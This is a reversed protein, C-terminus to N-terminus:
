IVKQKELYKVVEQLEGKLKLSSNKYVEYHSGTAEVVKWIENVYIVRSDTTETHIFGHERLDYIATIM